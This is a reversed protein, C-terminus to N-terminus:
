KSLASLMMAAPQGPSVCAPLAGRRGTWEAHIAAAAPLAAAPETVRGGGQGAKIQM